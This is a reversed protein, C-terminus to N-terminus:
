GVGGGHIDIQCIVGIDLMGREASGITLDQVFRFGWAKQMSALLGCDVFNDRVVIGLFHTPKRVKTNM